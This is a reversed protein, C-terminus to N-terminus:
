HMADFSRNRSVGGIMASLNKHLSKEKTAHLTIM